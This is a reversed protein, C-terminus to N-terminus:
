NSRSEFTLRRNGPVRGRQALSSPSFVEADRIRREEVSEGSYGRRRKKERRTREEKKM